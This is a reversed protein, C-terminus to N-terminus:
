KKGGELQRVKDHATLGHPTKQAPQWEEFFPKLYDSGNKRKKENM